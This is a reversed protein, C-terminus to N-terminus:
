KNLRGSLGYSDPLADFFGKIIMFNSIKYKNRNKFWFLLRKFPARSMDVRIRFIKKKVIYLPLKNTLMKWFKIDIESSPKVKLFEQYWNIEYTLAAMKDDLFGTSSINQANIRYQFMPTQSNAIGKEGAVLYSTLDDSAWALPLKIYGGKSKLVTRRFLFDGIYQYRGEWRHWMMSYITEYEPRAEQLRVFESSEDIIETWAHFIDLLPYKRILKVYEELCNPMLKDDDGMCIIFDGTALELCKNWNDIVNLAGCNVENKFYKIRSDVYGNIIEEIGYPSDDNLLILEFNNYTQNLVSDICEKLYEAKYVPITISFMM